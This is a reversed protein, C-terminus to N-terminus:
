KKARPSVDILLTGGTAGVALTNGDPSLAGLRAVGAPLMLVEPKSNGELDILVVRPQPLDYPDTRGPRRVDFKPRGVLVARKGDPFLQLGAYQIDGVPVTRITQQKVLDWVILAGGCGVIMTKGDPTFKPEDFSDNNANKEGTIRTVEALTDSDLVALANTRTKSRATGMTIMFLRKGDPSLTPRYIYSQKDEIERTKLVRGGALDYKVLSNETEGNPRYRTIAFYATKGDPTFRPEAYQDFLKKATGTTLDVLETWVPRERVGVDFSGETNVVAYKSGPVVTLGHPGRDGLSITRTRKGSAVDYVDIRGDYQLRQKIKGGQDQRVVQRNLVHVLLSKWDPTPQAYNMTSRLGSPTDLRATEKWTKTDWVQVVGTPYGLMVLRTGDPTFRVVGISAKRDPHPLTKFLRDTVPLLKVTKRAPLVTIEHVTSEVKGESWGPLSVVIRATGEVEARVPGHLNV